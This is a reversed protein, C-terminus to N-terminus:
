GEKNTGRTKKDSGKDVAEKGSGKAEEVLLLKLLSRCIDLHKEMITFYDFLEDIIKDKGM